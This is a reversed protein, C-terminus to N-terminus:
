REPAAPTMPRSLEAAHRSLDMQMWCADALEVGGRIFSAHVVKKGRSQLFQVMPIFDRDSSILVAVDFANDWAQQMMDTTIAADVGKEITRRLTKNCFPCINVERGCEPCRVPPAIKREFTRVQFGPKRNLINTLFDYLPIEADKMPNISAYVMTGEYSGEGAPFVANRALFDALKEYDIRYAPDFDRLELAFNWFDIFIKVKM